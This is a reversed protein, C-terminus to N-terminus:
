LGDNLMHSKGLIRAQTNQLCTFVIAGNLDNIVTKFTNSQPVGQFNRCFLPNASQVKNMRKFAELHLSQKKEVFVPLLNYLKSINSNDWIEQHNHTSDSTTLNIKIYKEKRISPPNFTHKLM